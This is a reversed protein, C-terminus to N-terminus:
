PMQHCTHSLHVSCAEVRLPYRLWSPILSTEYKKVIKALAVYSVVLLWTVQQYVFRYKVSSAALSSNIGIIKPPSSLFIM